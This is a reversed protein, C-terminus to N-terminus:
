NKEYMIVKKLSEIKVVKGQMKDEALRKAEKEDYARVYTKTTSLDNKLTIKYCIKEKGEVFAFLSQNVM